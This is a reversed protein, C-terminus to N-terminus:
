IKNNIYNFLKPSIQIIMYGIKYKININSRFFEKKYRKLNFTLKNIYVYKKRDNCKLINSILIINVLVYYAKIYECSKKKSNYNKLIIEYADLATLKKSSFNISFMCGEDNLRYHYLNDNVLVLDASNETFLQFNFLLDEYAHINNNFRINNIMSKRYLKNWVFGQVLNNSFLQIIADDENFKSINQEYHVKEKLNENMINDYGSAVIVKEDYEEAINYLTEFMTSEIIDDCDVFGIYEGNSYEIGM